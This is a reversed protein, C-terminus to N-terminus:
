KKLERLAAEAYLREGLAARAENKWWEASSRISEVMEMCHAITDILWDKDEQTLKM